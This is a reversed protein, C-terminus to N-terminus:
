CFKYYIKLKCLIIESINHGMSAFGTKQQKKSPKNKLGSQPAM